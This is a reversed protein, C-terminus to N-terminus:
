ESSLVSIDKWIKTLDKPRRALGDDTTAECFQLYHPNAKWYKDLPPSESHANPDSFPHGQCERKWITMALDPAWMGIVAFDRALAANADTKSAVEAEAVLNARVQEDKLGCKQLSKQLSQKPHSYLTAALAEDDGDFPATFQGVMEPDGNVAEAIAEFVYGNRTQIRACYKKLSAASTCPPKAGIFYWDSSTVGAIDKGSAAGKDCTVEDMKPPVYDAAAKAPAVTPVACAALLMGAM